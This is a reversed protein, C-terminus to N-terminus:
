LYVIARSHINLVNFHVTISYMNNSQNMYRQHLRAWWM